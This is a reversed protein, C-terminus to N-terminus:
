PEKDIEPADHVEYDNGIFVLHHVPFYILDSNKKNPNIRKMNNPKEKDFIEIKIFKKDQAQSSDHQETALGKMMSRITRRIINEFM